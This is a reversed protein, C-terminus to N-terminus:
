EELSGAISHPRSLSGKGPHQETTSLAGEHQGITSMSLQGADATPLRSQIQSIAVQCIGKLRRVRMQELLPEVARASGLVGLIRIAATKVRLEKFSLLELLYQEMVAAAEQSTDLEALSEDSLYDAVLLLAQPGLKKPLAKLTDSSIPHRYRRFVRLAAQILKPSSSLLFTEFIDLVATNGRRSALEAVARIRTEPPVAESRAMRELEVESAAAFAAATSKVDSRADSGVPAARKPQQRRQAHFVRFLVFALLALLLLQLEM